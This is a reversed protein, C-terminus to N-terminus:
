EDRADTVGGRLLLSTVPEEGEWEMCLADEGFVSQARRGAAGVTDGM